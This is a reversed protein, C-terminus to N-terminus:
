ADASCVREYVLVHVGDPTVDSRHVTFGLREALLRSRENDPHIVATLRPLSLDGFAVRLWESAAEAAYGHGQARRDLVWGVEVEDWQPWPHLGVRGVFEGSTRVIVASQGFGRTAWISEFRAAQATAKVADLTEGGIYRAVEEDAYVAALAAAHQHGLPPLLLRETALHV